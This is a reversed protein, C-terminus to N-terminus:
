ILNNLKTFVQANLDSSEVYNYDGKRNMMQVKNKKDKSVHFVREQTAYKSFQDKWNGQLFYLKM